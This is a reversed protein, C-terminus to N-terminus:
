RDPLDAIGSQGATGTDAVPDAESTDNQRGLSRASLRDAKKQDFFEPPPAQGRVEGLLDRVAGQIAYSVDRILRADVPRGRYQSLDVPPGAVVRIKKRPLPRFGGKTYPVFVEQTGWHVVPVVPFDGALAMAAVGPRPKMPWGDPDRSVTGDPYILVMKGVQLAHIAAELGTQGQGGGREVPIQGTGAIVRGVIPLRWLSAKAMIHPVRGSKRLFVATYVPDLHSIHNAVVLVPGPVAVHRLGEFSRRGLIRTMPFMVVECLRIWGNGKEFV